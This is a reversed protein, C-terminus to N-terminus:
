EVKEVAQEFQLNLATAVAKATEPNVSKGNIAKSITNRHIGTIESLEKIDMYRRAMEGAIAVRNLIYKKGAM